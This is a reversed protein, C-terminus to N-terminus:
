YLYKNLIKVIRQDLIVVETFHVPLSYWNVQTNDKKQGNYHVIENLIRIQVKLFQRIM